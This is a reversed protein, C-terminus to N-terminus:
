PGCSGSLRASVHELIAQIAPTFDSQCISQVVGAGGRATIDRALEVSRRPPFAIGRGTVDCSPSLRAPNAPDVVEAMRPDALIADYDLTPTILDPPTGSITAYVLSAPDSRLGLLGDVYRSVPHVATPNMFCRLNLEGMYTSSATNFLEPDAASCDTEDTVEILALVSDPRAFGANLTDGHGGTGMAFITSSSPSLAKLPAELQQEFGCGGTGVLSVCAVDNAFSMADMGPVFQQVAPYTAACGPMAENGVTRLVGNDGFNPEDNCTMVNFGGVGMDTTITGVHLSTVAPFDQIGDSDIDGTALIEAMRPFQETLSAQEEAMSNSNDVTFLVDLEGTARRCCSEGECATGVFAMSFHEVQATAIHGRVATPLAAYNGDENTWFITAIDGRGSFPLEITAPAAFRLGAPEFRYVKSYAGFRAPVPNETVTVRIETMRDLAGSPVALALEGLDVRGGEAGILASSSTGAPPPDAPGDPGYSSTCGVLALALVLRHM